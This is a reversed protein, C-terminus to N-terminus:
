LIVKINRLQEKMDWDSPKLDSERWKGNSFIWQQRYKLLATETADEYGFEVGCCPCIDFSSSQGDEGWPPELLDPYGCVHCTYKVM